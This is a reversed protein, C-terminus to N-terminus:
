IGETLRMILERQEPYRRALDARNGLERDELDFGPAMTTGLLAFEGGQDLYTGHWVDKPVACQLQQGSPLDPGLVVTRGTGDPHLQLMTVPDGLYFHYIEDSTLRHMLGVHGPALLYYISTAHDTRSTERYFGGEFGLPQEAGIGRAVDFPGEHEVVRARLSEDLQEDLCELRLSRPSHVLKGRPQTLQDAVAM